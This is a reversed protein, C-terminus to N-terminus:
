CHRHRAFKPRGLPKLALQRPEPLEGRLTGEVPLATRRTGLRETWRVARRRAPSICGPADRGVGPKQRKRLFEIGIKGNKEILERM